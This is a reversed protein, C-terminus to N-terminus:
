YPCFFRPRSWGIQNGWRDMLPRRAWYGGPCGIPAPGGYDAYAAYGEVPAYERYAYGPPPGALANGIIAGGIIAGAGIAAGCNWGCRADATNTTALSGAAIAAAATVALLIKKM